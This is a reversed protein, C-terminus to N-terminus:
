NEAFSNLLDHMGVVEENITAAFIEENRDESSIFDTLASITPYRFMEPLTVNWNLGERIMSHLRVIKLSNGGLEFFTKKVSIKEKEIGLIESWIGVLKEQTLGSAAVYNDGAGLQPDPLAKKNLKGNTTLPLEQLRVYHAPVMYEPVRDGLFTRLQIADIEKESLYYAILYKDDEKQKVIVVAESIAEHMKLQNEIEGLEIRYGRIKVQDDIRGKYVINGNSLMTAVDGTRYMKKGPIFPSDIFKEQTLLQQQFYGRALGEGAIYMEGQVGPAVPQLYKDLIYIQANAAPIGIPVAPYNEGPNFKYIMCGVTAETPGYENYIDINGKFKEHISRAVSTDLQEGGVIFRKVISHHHKLADSDRIVKLHAPTLKVVQAENALLVREILLNNENENYIFVTNGTVLPVFISTVTLDFSISTYLAFGVKEGKTYQEAAWNVYNMLSRHEIMVGKPQGTSGSTYIIYALSGPEIDLPPQEDVMADPQLAEQTILLKINSSEAIAKIREEPYAPDIPVYAAGAKLVGLICPVLNIERELMIGVLDGPKIGKQYRLWAATKDSLQKLAAYSMTENDLKLAISDPSLQVQKEFRTIVNENQPYKVTSKNFDYVLHRQEKDSLLSIDSIKKNPDAIVEAVIKRFYAIFREVTEHTFLTSAYEMNLFIRGTNEVATLALDFKSIIQNRYWPRLTLGPIELGTREFNQYTFMVDFLPNRSTDRELKLQDILEEYPYSQNDICALTNQKVEHLFEKFRLEGHPYNRLPLTNVFMGIINELDAHQRGATPIGIVVDEQSSLKGLLINFISLVVMFLTAGEAEAISSLRTTDDANISFDISSGEFSKVLPRSFDYPLEATPLEGAFQNLWFDKRREREQKQEQSQQWEAYDKYQLHLEPLQEGNYFSMFDKSLVGVSVGDTLIHHMDIMLLQTGPSLDILGVRMLPAKELEFPRIFKSIIGHAEAKSANYYEIEFEVAPLIKQVAEGKVVDFYTRLTEHRAILQRFAHELKQRNVNGTLEFVQPVNYALSTKDFQHLFYLRQQSFSLNYQDKRGAPQIQSAKTNTGISRFFDLIEPKKRRLEEIIDKTLAERAGKIKLENDQVAVIINNNKRLHTIYEDIRM